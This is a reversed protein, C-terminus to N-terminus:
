SIAAGAAGIIPVISTIAQVIDPKDQIFKWGDVIIKQFLDDVGIRKRETISPV